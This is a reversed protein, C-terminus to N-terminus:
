VLTLTNGDVIVEVEQGIQIDSDKLVRALSVAEGKRSVLDPCVYVSGSPPNTRLGGQYGGTKTILEIATRQNAPPKQILAECQRLLYLEVRELGDAYKQGLPEVYFHVSVAM